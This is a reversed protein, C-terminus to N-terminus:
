KAAKKILDDYGGTNIRWIAAWRERTFLEGRVILSLASYYEALAPDQIRNEGTLLTQEYGRPVKRLLHGIRWTDGSFPIRALLPDALAYRDIIHVHPGAFYGLYGVQLETVLPPGNERYEMGKLAAWHRPQEVGPQANVLGATDFYYLREDAIQHADVWEWPETKVPAKWLLTPTASSWGLVFVFAFAALAQASRIDRFRELLLMVSVLLPATFFRGSMFDGGIWLIYALYLVVGLAMSAQRGNRTLFASIIGLCIVSLTIPDQSISNIFYWGGQALLENLPILANLKAYATNPFPFGYYTVSFIEWLIFPLFGLAFRSLTQIKSDSRQFIYFLAPLVLLLLDMRNLTLLGALLGSRGASGSETQMTNLFWSGFLILLVHTLPNELGSTSYDMYAKSVILVALAVPLALSRGTRFALLYIALLSVAMSVFITTFFAERSLYYPITLVFFWLPHTFVQVREAPNWTMGYGNVLNDISRLTIFADDSAWATRWLAYAFVLMLGTLVVTPGSLYAPHSKM